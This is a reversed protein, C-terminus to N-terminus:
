VKECGLVYVDLLVFGAVSLAIIGLELLMVTAYFAAAGPVM